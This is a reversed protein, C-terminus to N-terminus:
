FHYLDLNVPGLAGAVTDTHVNTRNVDEFKLVNRLMWVSLFRNRNPCIVANKAHGTYSRTGCFGDGHFFLLSQYWFVLLLWSPKNRVRAKENKNTDDKKQANSAM